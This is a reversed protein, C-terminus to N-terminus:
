CRGCIRSMAGSLGSTIPPRARASIAAPSGSSARASAPRDARSSSALFGAIARAREASASAAEAGATRCRRARPAARRRGRRDRPGTRAPRPSSPARAVAVCGGVCSSSIMRRSRSQFSPAARLRKRWSRSADPGRPDRPRARLPPPQRGQEECSGFAKADRQERQRARDQERAGLEGQVNELRAVALHHAVRDVAGAPDRHDLGQAEVVVIM